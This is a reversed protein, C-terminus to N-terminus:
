TEDSKERNIISVVGTKIMRTSLRFSTRVGESNLVEFSWSYEFREDFEDEERLKMTMVQAYTRVPAKFAIANEGEKILLFYEDNWVLMDGMRITPLNMHRAVENYTLMTKQPEPIDLRVPPPDVKDRLWVWMDGVFWKLTIWRWTLFDRM